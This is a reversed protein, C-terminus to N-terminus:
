SFNGYKSLLPWLEDQVSDQSLKERKGGAELWRGQPKPLFTGIETCTIKEKKLEEVIINTNDKACAILLSGSGILRLPDAKLKSCIAETSADIPVKDASIQFGLKSAISMELISGIIGGETIDHMAHVKGTSFAVSSEKLVSLKDILKVARRQIAPDVLKAVAPLKALISTGEIGATKTLLISDFEKADGSTVYEDGSGIATVVIIRRDLRPTIETHGGAVAIGLSSATENIENMVEAVEEVGTGDPFLAVVNITDPSIGSTAVDNASVNVAYWGIRDVVGTIPDSSTVIFKGRSRVVGVDIGIDPPVM